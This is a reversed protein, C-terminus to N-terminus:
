ITRAAERLCTQWGWSEKWSQMRLRRQSPLEPKGWLYSSAQLHLLADTVPPAPCFRDWSADKWPWWSGLLVCPGSLQVAASRQHLRFPPSQPVARPPGLCGLCLVVSGEGGWLQSWARPAAECIVAHGAATRRVVECVQVAMDAACCNMHGPPFLSASFGGLPTGSEPRTGSGLSAWQVRWAAGPGDLQGSSVSCPDMCVACLVLPVHSPQVAATVSGATHRGPSPHLLPSALVTWSAQCHRPPEPRAHEATLGQM